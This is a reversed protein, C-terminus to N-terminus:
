APLARARARMLRALEILRLLTDGAAGPALERARAETLRALVPTWEPGFSAAVHALADKPSRPGQGELELLSAAATRLPAAVDAAVGALQEDHHGRTVYAARLRLSLNLLVQNLRTILAGRPITVAAFPDVGYLLRRRRRVDAFKQAFAQAAAEVEDRLLYMASLKVAAHAVMAPTRLREAGDKDFRELVVIVNVDSSPRLAGEAASGYLVIGVLAEGFAARTATVFEELARTVDDPLDTM